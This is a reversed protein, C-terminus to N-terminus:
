NFRYTSIAFHMVAVAFAIALHPNLAMHVFGHLPFCVYVFMSYVISFKNSILLVLSFM